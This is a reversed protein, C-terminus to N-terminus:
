FPGSRVGEVVHLTALRVKQGEPEDLPSWTTSQGIFWAGTDLPFLDSLRPLVSTANEADILQRVSLVDGLPYVTTGHPISSVHFGFGDLILWGSDIVTGSGQNLVLSDSDSDYLLSLLPASERCSIFTKRTDATIPASLVGDSVAHEFQTPFAQSTPMLSAVPDSQPATTLVQAPISEGISVHILESPHTYVFSFTDIDSGFSTYLCLRTNFGYLSNEPITRNIYLGSLVAALVFLVAVVLTAAGRSRRWIAASVGLAILCGVSLLSTAPYGPRIVRLTGLGAETLDVLNLKTSHPVSNAIMEIEDRTLDNARVTVLAIHGAGHRRILLLPVGDRRLITRSDETPAGLLQGTLGSGTGLIPNHLPLLRRVVPSDFRFFDSGTLLVLTGGAFAWQSITSWANQPPANSIWLSEVADLAWWDIPLETTNVPPPTDQSLSYPLIGYTLPFPDLRRASHLDVAHEALMSGDAGILTVFVPNLPDYIPITTRYIGDVAILVSPEQVITATGRWPNGLTQTIRLTAPSGAEYGQVRVRVPAYREPVVHGGLGIQVELTPVAATTRSCLAMPFLLALVGAVVPLYLNRGIAMM